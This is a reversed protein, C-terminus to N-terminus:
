VVNRRKARYRTYYNRWSEPKVGRMRAAYSGHMMLRIAKPISLGQNRLQDIEAFIRCRNRSGPGGDADRMASAASLTNRKRGKDAAIRVYAAHLM